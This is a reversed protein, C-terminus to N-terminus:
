IPLQFIETNTKFRLVGFLSYHIDFSFFVEDNSMGSKLDRKLPIRYEINLTPDAVTGVGM